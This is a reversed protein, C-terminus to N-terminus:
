SIDSAMYGLKFTNLVDNFLINDEMGEGDGDEDFRQGDLKYTQMETQVDAHRDANRNARRGIQRDTATLM